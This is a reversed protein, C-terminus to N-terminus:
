QNVLLIFGKGFYPYGVAAWGTFNNWPPYQPVSVNGGPALLHFWKKSEVRMGEVVEVM